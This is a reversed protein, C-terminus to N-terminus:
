HIFAFKGFRDMFRGKHKITLVHFKPDIIGKCQRCDNITDTVEEVDKRSKLYISFSMAIATPKKDYIHM